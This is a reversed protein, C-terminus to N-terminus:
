ALRIRNIYSGPMLEKFILMSIAPIQTLQTIDITLSTTSESATPTWVYANSTVLQWYFYSGYSRLSGQLILKSYSKVNIAKNFDLSIFVVSANNTCTIQTNQFVFYGSDATFGHTNVGNYYLDTAVPVWGEFTGKVGFITVNKKIYQALLNADGKITQAGALYQNAAITQNAKGPTYTAAAKEAMTGTLPNGNKDVIVKGKRVDAAAATVPDLDAGGGSAAPILIESM